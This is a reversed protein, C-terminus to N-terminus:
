ASPWSSIASSRTSATSIAEGPGVWSSNVRAQRAASLGTSHSFGSAGVMSAQRRTSSASTALPRRSIWTPNM